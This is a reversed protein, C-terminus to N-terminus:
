QAALRGRSGEETVVKVSCCAKRQQRGRCGSESLLLGEEAAKREAVVKVSCCAKRQQRGRCGAALRGRSGEEAIVKM